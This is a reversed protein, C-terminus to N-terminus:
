EDESDSQNSDSEKSESEDSLKQLVEQIKNNLDDIQGTVETLQAAQIELAGSDATQDQVLTKLEETKAATEEKTTELTKEM